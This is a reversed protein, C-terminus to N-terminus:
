KNLSPGVLQSSMIPNEQLYPPDQRLQIRMQAEGEGGVGAEGGAAEEGVEGEVTAPEEGVVKDMRKGGLPEVVAGRPTPPLHSLLNSPMMTTTLIKSPTVTMIIIVLVTVIETSFNLTKM